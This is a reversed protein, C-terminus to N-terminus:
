QMYPREPLIIYNSNTNACGPQSKQLGTTLGPLVLHLRKERKMWGLLSHMAASFGIGTLRHDQCYATLRNITSIVAQYIKDPDLESRGPQPHRMQYGVHFEGLIKGDISYAVAKTHTSGIDVGILYDM